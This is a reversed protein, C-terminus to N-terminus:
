FFSGLNTQPTQDETNAIQNQTPNTQLTSKSSTATIMAFITRWHNERRRFILLAMLSPSRGGKACCFRGGCQNLEFFETFYSVHGRSLMEYGHRDGLPRFSFM